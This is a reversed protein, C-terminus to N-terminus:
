VFNNRTAANYATWASAAANSDVARYQWDYSNGDTLGPCSVQVNATGSAVLGSECDSVSDGTYDIQLKVTDGDPDYYSRIAYM